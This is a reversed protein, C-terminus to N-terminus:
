GHNKGKTDELDYDPLKMGEVPVVYIRAPKGNVIELVEATTRSEGEHVVSEYHLVAYDKSGM